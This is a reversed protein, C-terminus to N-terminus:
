TPVPDTHAMATAIGAAGARDEWLYTHFSDSAWRGWRKVLGSDHFASWLASAGGFRLSHSGISDAPTGMALAAERLVAQITERTLQVGNQDCLLPEFADGGAHHSQPAHKYFLIIAEVVCLRQGYALDHNVFHNRSEGRNYIDTKSGAVLLRVEDAQACDALALPVGNKFLTVHNGQLGRGPTYRGVDLFESARLLFFFGLCLAAWVLAGDRSHYPDLRQKLYALMRPTVPHRREKCGRRRKLGALALNVRPMHLFPDPLGLALHRNRIAAIRLKVTGPAKNLVLGSHVIFDLVLNESEACPQNSRWIPNVGRVHCFRKWWKFQSNYTKQSAQSIKDMVLQNREEEYTTTRLGTPRKENLGSFLPAQTLSTIGPAWFSLDDAFRAKFRTEKTSKGVHYSSDPLDETPVVDEWPSFCGMPPLHHGPLGVRDALDLLLNRQVDIPGDDEFHWPWNTMERQIWQNNCGIAGQCFTNGLSHMGCLLLTGLLLILASASGETIVAIM